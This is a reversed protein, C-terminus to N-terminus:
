ERAMRARSHWRATSFCKADTKGVFFFMPPAISPCSVGGRVSRLDRIALRHRTRTIPAMERGSRALVAEAPAALDRVVGGIRFCSASSFPESVAPPSSNPEETAMEPVVATTPAWSPPM